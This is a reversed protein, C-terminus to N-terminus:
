ATLFIKIRGALDSGNATDKLINRLPYIHMGKLKRAVLPGKLKEMAIYHIDTKHYKVYFDAHSGLSRFLKAMETALTQTPVRLVRMNVAREMVIGKECTPCIAMPGRICDVPIPSGCGSNSETDKCWYMLEDGGGHFKKGSEWIQIGCLNPGQVTRNKEFMIEIKYRAKIEPTAGLNKEAQESSINATKKAREIAARTQPDALKEFDPHSESILGSMSPRVSKFM